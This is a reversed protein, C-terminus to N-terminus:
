SPKGAGWQYADAPNAQFVLRDGPRPKRGGPCKPHDAELAGWAERAWLLDGPQGYPCRLDRAVHSGRYRFCHTGRLVGAESSSTYDVMNPPFKVVRRTQTKRGDLLARAM